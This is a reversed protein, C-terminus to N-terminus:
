PPMTWVVKGGFTPLGCEAAMWATETTTVPPEAEADGDCDPNCTLTITLTFRYIGDICEAVLELDLTGCAGVAIVDTWRYFYRPTVGGINTCQLQWCAPGYEPDDGACGTITTCIEVLGGGDCFGNLLEECICCCCEAGAGLGGNRLLLKGGVRMLGM